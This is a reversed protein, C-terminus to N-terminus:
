TGEPRIKRPLEMEIRTHVQLFRRESNPYGDSRAQRLLVGIAASAVRDGGRDRQL